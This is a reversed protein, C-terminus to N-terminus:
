PTYTAYISIKRSGSFVSSGWNAVFGNNTAPNSMHRTQGGIEYRYKQKNDEFSLALWYTGATLPTAPLDITMWSMDRIATANATEAVLTGPEGADDTYIAYRVNKGVAGGVYATISTVTGDQPLTAQTGIQLLGINKEESVFITDFGFVDPPGGGGGGGGSADLYSIQKRTADGIVHECTDPNVALAASNTIGFTTVDYQRILNGDFDGIYVQRNADLFMYKDTGPLHIVDEINAANFPANGALITLLINGAQDTVIIEKDIRDAFIIGGEYSGTATTGIYDVGSTDKNSIGLVSFSGQEIGNLDVFSIREPVKDHSQVLHGAWPGSQVFGVGTPGGTPTAVSTLLTGAQDTMYFTKDVYDVLLWGGGAPTPMGNFSTGEPLRAIGSTDGTSFVGSDFQGAESDPTYDANCSAGVAAGWELSRQLITLGDTNLSSPSFGNGGWPLQIRRGATAGGGYM